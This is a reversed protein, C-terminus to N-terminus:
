ADGDRDAVNLLVGLDGDLEFVGALRLRAIHDIFGVQGEACLGDGDAARRLLDVLDGAGDHADIHRIGICEDVRITGDDQQVLVAVLQRQALIHCARRIGNTYRDRDQLILINLEICCKNGAAARRGLIRLYRDLRGGQADRAIRGNQVGHRVLQGDARDIQGLDGPGLRELDRRLQRAANRAAGVALGHLDRDRELAKHHLFEGNWRRADEALLCRGAHRKGVLIDLDGDAAARADHAREAHLVQGNRGVEAAM